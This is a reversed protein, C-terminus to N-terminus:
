LSTVEQAFLTMFQQARGDTAYQDDISEARAVIYDAVAQLFRLPLPFTDTLALEAGFPTGYSDFSLDTRKSFVYALGANAYTLLDTDKYRTKDDDHLNLRARDCADQLTPM